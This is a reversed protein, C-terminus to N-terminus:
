LSTMEKLLKYLVQVSNKHGEIYPPIKVNRKPEYLRLYIILHLIDGKPIRKFTFDELGMLADKYKRIEEPLEAMDSDELSDKFTLIDEVLSEKSLKNIKNGVENRFCSYIYNYASYSIDFRDRRELIALIAYQYLNDADSMYNSFHKILVVNFVKRIEKLHAETVNQTTFFDTLKEQDIKVKYPKENCNM